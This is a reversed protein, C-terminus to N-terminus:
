SALSTLSLYQKRGLTLYYAFVLLVPIVLLILYNLNFFYRVIFHLAIIGGIYPFLKFGQIKFPRTENEQVNVEIEPSSCWDVKAVLTHQGPTTIFDKTEGNAILGVMEGDIYIQYNRLMSNYEGIRQIQITAM